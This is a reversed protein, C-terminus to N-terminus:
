TNEKDDGLHFEVDIKKKESTLHFSLCTPCRYIRMIGTQGPRLTAAGVAFYGTALRAAKEAEDETDYCAKGGGPCRRRMAGRKEKTKKRRSRVREGKM